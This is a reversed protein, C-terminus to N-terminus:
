IKKMSNSSTNYRNVRNERWVMHMLNCVWPLPTPDYRCFPHRCRLFPCCPLFYSHGLFYAIYCSSGPHHSGQHHASHTFLWSTLLFSKVVLHPMLIMMVLITCMIEDQQQHKFLCFLGWFVPFLCSFDLVFIPGPCNSQLSSYFGQLSLSPSSLRSLLSFILFHSPLLAFYM